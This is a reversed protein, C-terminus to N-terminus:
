ASKSKQYQKKTLDVFKYMDSNQMKLYLNKNVSVPIKLYPFKILYRDGLNGVLAVKTQSKEM